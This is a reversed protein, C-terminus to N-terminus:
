LSIVDLEDIDLQKAIDKVSEVKANAIQEEYNKVAQKSISVLKSEILQNSVNRSWNVLMFTIPVFLITITLLGLEIDSGPIRGLVIFEVLTNEARFIQFLSYALLGVLGFSFIRKGM